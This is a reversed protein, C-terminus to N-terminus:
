QRRQQKGTPILFNPSNPLIKFSGLIKMILRPLTPITATIYLKVYKGMVKENAKINDTLDKASLPEDMKLLYPRFESSTLVNIGRVRNFKIIDGHEDIAEGEGTLAARDRAAKKEVIAECVEVKTSKRQGKVGVATAFKQIQNLNVEAVTHSHREGDSTLCQFGKLRTCKSADPLKDKKVAVTSNTKQTTVEVDDLTYLNKLLDPDASAKKKSTSSATPAALDLGGTSAAANIDSGNEHTTKYCPICLMTANGLLCEDQAHQSLLSANVVVRDRNDEQRNPPIHYACHFGHTSEGCEACLHKMLASLPFGRMTCFSGAGCVVENNPNTPNAVLPLAPMNSLAALSAAAEQVPAAPPSSM